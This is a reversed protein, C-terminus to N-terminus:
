ARHEGSESAVFKFFRSPEGSKTQEQYLFALGRDDFISFFEEWDIEELSGKGSYEPFDIRLLGEGEDQHTSAVVSPKGGREEVWHRIEGHDMTVKSSGSASHSGSDHKKKSPM